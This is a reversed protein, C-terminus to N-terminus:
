CVRVVIHVYYVKICLLHCAVVVSVTVTATAVVVPRLLCHSISVSRNLHAWLPTKNFQSITVMFQALMHM